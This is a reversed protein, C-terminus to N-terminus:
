ISLDKILNTGDTTQLNDTGIDITTITTDDDDRSTYRPVSGKGSEEGVEEDEWDSERETLEAYMQRAEGEPESEDSKWQQSKWQQGESQQSELLQVYEEPVLGIEGQDDEAVLWGQGYRYNIWVIQGMTLGIENDNEPTFDFLAVASGAIEGDEEGTEDEWPPEDAPEFSSYHLECDSSYAFDRVSISM